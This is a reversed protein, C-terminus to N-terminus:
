YSSTENLNSSREKVTSSTFIVDVYHGFVIVSGECSSKCRNMTLSFAKELRM